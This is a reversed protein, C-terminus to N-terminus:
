ISIVNWRAAGIPDFGRDGATHGDADCHTCAAWICAGESHFRVPQYWARCQPCCYLRAEVIPNVSNIQVHVM